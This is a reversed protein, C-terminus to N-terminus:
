NMGMLSFIERRLPEHAIQLMGDRIRNAAVQIEATTASDDEASSTSPWTKALTIGQKILSFLEKDSRISDIELRKSTATALEQFVRILELGRPDIRQNSWMNQALPPLDVDHFGVENLFRRPLPLPGTLPLLRLQRVAPRQYVWESWAKLWSDPSGVELGIPPLGIAQYTPPLGQAKQHMRSRVWDKIPRLVFVVTVEDFNASAKSMFVEISTADLSCLYESSYIVNEACNRLSLQSWLKSSDNAALRQVYKIPRLREASIGNASLQPHALQLADQLTTSGCKPLGVHVILRRTM